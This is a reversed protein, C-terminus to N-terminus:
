KIKKDLYLTSEVMKKTKLVKKALNEYDKMNNIIFFIEFRKEKKNFTIKVFPTKNKSDKKLQKLKIEKFVKLEEIENFKLVFVQTSKREKNYYLDMAEKNSISDLGGIYSRRTYKRLKNIVVEINLDKSSLINIHKLVIEKRTLIDPFNEKFIKVFLKADKLSLSSKKDLIKKISPYLAQAYKNIIYSHYWKKKKKKNMKIAVYGNGIATALAEDIYRAALKGFVGEHKKMESLFKPMFSSSDYCFHATEHLAVDYFNINKRPPLVAEVIQLTKFSYGGLIFLRAKKFYDADEKSLYLPYIFVKLEPLNIKSQYLKKQLDIFEKTKNDINKFNKILKDVEAKAKKHYFVERYIPLFYDMVESLEYALKNPYISYLSLKFESLNKSLAAFNTLFDYRKKWKRYNKPLTKVQPYMDIYRPIKRVLKEFKAIVKEDKSGRNKKYISELLISGESFDSISFLFRVLNVNENYEFKVNTAFIPITILFIFLFKM